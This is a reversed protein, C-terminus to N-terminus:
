RWPPAVRGIHVVYCTAYAHFHTTGSKAQSRYIEENRCHTQGHYPILTLDIALRQPCKKLGKPLQKAFSQNLQKELVGAEPCLGTLADRVAQDSPADRLRSCAAYVSCLQAAAYFLVQLLAKVTCKPGYDHWKMNPQLMAAAIHYIDNATMSYHASRM